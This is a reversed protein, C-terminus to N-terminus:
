KFMDSLRGVTRELPHNEEVSRVLFKSINDKEEPSLSILHKLKDALDSPDGHNFILKPAFEGFYKKFAENSTLVLLGSAMSELVVKDIGGKPALNVSIDAEKYVDPIKKYPVFDKFEVSRSVDLDSVLNKLQSFYADDGPMVPRGVIRLKIDQNSDSVTKIARILTELGKIPSIRSVSVVDTSNKIWSRETKFLEPDIGHGVEVVKPSKLMVSERSATAIKYVLKEALKLRWTVSRHLYWLVIRKRFLAAAPWAALAFIPSMHAFVGDCRPVYKFLLGFFRAAQVIKSAGKEKGLSLVEVNDPLDYVGKALTIVFVREFKKAFEKIWDAFFGLLDDKVDVKQTIILLNSM